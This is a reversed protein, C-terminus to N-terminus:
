LSNEKTKKSIIKKIEEGEHFKGHINWTLKYLLLSEIIEKGIILQNNNIVSITFRNWM